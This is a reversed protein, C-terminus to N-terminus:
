EFPQNLKEPPVLDQGPGRVHRVFVVGGLITFLMRYPKGRRTKFILQRIETDGHGDEPALSCNGATTSLTALVDALRDVGALRLDKVM